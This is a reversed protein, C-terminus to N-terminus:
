KVPLLDKFYYGAMKTVFDSKMCSDDCDDPAKYERYVTEGLQYKIPEKFIPGDFVFTHFEGNEGCPDVDSPLDKVFDRDIDRGVFSEDLKDSKIGVLVTQFGLDLFEELLDNTNRKWIPFLGTLSVEALKEERYAKLDELFIDGFASFEVGRSKVEELCAKMRDDYESMSLSEPLKLEQVPLGISAAQKMLLERRVGHMSIRDFATSISTLLGTIEFRDDHQLHYLALASDKGGSWNFITKQKM